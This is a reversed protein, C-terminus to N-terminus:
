GKDKEEARGARRLADAVLSVRSGKSGKVLVVDGADIIRHVRAALAEATDACHGRRARPLADWLAAMRPGVCHVEDVERMAPLDALAAHLAAEDEGLELMDGLVAVRRGRSVRGVGDLPRSAALVDLAAGMSAPNANFADDILDISMGDAAMDLVLRERTGRGNPPSWGALDAMAVARDLGLEAIIALVALANMAFHRGVAGIRFLLPTRWARARVVTTDPHLDVSLLRHHAGRAEGFGIVRAAHRAATERLIPATEIDTHYLGTGGPELGEYISAKERAIGSIDEFAALHAAAVTTILAVHPRALRALPAIEGPANMGIEIVAYATDAPMRALTLPVGWHNNYSQVSAHARGQHACIAHLMEKTSTKGVSGTVAVVRGRMRARGARGLAELATQVDGVLLLPADEAVGEPIRSVMAAAAGRALADAVFDHGDRADRLAVFLDGRALTRTDISVGTATWDRRAEGGTAQSADAATWLTV